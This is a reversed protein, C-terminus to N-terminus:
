QHQFGRKLQEVIDELKESRMAEIASILLWIFSILGAIIFIARWTTADLGINEFNATILTTIIPIFFSLPILWNKKKEMNKLHESLCLRIKDETTIVVEQSVNFHIKTIKTLQESSFNVESIEPEDAKKGNTM